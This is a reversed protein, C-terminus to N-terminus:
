ATTAFIAGLYQGVSSAAQTEVFNAVLSLVAPNTTMPVLNYVLPVGTILTLIDKWPQLTSLSPDGDLVSVLVNSLVSKATASTESPIVENVTNQLAKVAGYCVPNDPDNVGLTAVADTVSTFGFITGALDTLWERYECYLTAQYVPVVFPVGSNTLSPDGLQLGAT